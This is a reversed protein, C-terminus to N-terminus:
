RAKTEKQLQQDAAAVSRVDLVDLQHDQTLLELDQAALDPTGLQSGRVAGDEGGSAAEQWMLSSSSEDDRRLRSFEM